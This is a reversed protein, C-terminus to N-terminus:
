ILRIGNVYTDPAFKKIIPLRVVVRVEASWKQKNMVGFAKYGHEKAYDFVTRIEFKNLVESSPLWFVESPKLGVVYM